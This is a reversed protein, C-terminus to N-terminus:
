NKKGYKRREGIPRLSERVLAKEWKPLIYATSALLKRM